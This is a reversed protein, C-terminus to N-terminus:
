LCEYKGDNDVYLVSTLRWCGDIVKLHYEYTSVFDHIDKHQSHIIAQNGKKSSEVIKEQELSHTSESGFAVGQPSLTSVCYKDILLQYNNTANKMGNIKDNKYNACSENNWKEYDSIFSKVLEEPTKM